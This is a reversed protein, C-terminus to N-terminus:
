FIDIAICKIAFDIVFVALQQFLSGGGNRCPRSTPVNTLKLKDTTRRHGDVALQAAKSIGLGSVAEANLKSSNMIRSVSTIPSTIDISLTPREHATIVQLHTCQVLWAGLKILVALFSDGDTTNVIREDTGAGWNQGSERM